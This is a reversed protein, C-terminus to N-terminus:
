ADRKESSIVRLIPAAVDRSTIYLRSNGGKPRIYEKEYRIYGYSLRLIATLRAEQSRTKMMIDPSMTLAEQRQM